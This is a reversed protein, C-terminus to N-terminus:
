RIPCRCAELREEQTFVARRKRPVPRHVAAPEVAFPFEAAGGDGPFKAVGFPVSLEQTVAREGHAVCLFCVEAPLRRLEARTLDPVAPIIRDLDARWTEGITM